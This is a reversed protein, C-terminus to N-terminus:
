SEAEKRGSLAARVSDLTLALAHWAMVCTSFPVVAFVWRMKIPLSTANKGLKQTYRVGYVTLVIFLVLCILHVLTKLIDQGKEPFLGQVATIAINGGHYYVCTAGLFTSWILMYRTLEESWSLPRIWDIYGCLFRAIIQAATVLVMAGLLVVILAGCVKDLVDSVRRLPFPKNM